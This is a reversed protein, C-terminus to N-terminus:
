NVLIKSKLVLPPDLFKLLPPPRLGGLSQFYAGKIWSDGVTFAIQVYKSGLFHM